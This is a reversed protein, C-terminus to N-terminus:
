ETEGELSFAGLLGLKERLYKILKLAEIGLHIAAHLKLDRSLEITAAHLKLYQIAEDPNM